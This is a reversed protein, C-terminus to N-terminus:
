HKSAFRGFKDRCVSSFRGLSDRNFSQRVATAKDFNIDKVENLQRGEEAIVEYECARLKSYNCDTPVSVANKPNVKIVMLKGDDKFNNAYEWSGVHLGRACGQNSDACVDDRKAIIHEGIGNYVKGDKNVKGKLIVIDGGTKSYYDQGVGKYALFCGDDTIPMNKHELFKYLQEIVAPSPNQYLNEAFKLLRQAQNPLERMFFLIREVLYGGVENDKYFVKGDQVTFQGSFKAQIAASMDLLPVMEEYRGQKYLLVVQHWNPHTSEVIKTQFGKDSIFAVVLSQGTWNHSLIKM